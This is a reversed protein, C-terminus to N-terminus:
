HGRSSSNPDFGDIKTLAEDYESKSLYRFDIRRYDRTNPTAPPYIGDGFLDNYGWNRKPPRYWASHRDTMPAIGAESEYLSVLSGRYRFEIGSWKELFRPLNHAGGSQQGTLEISPVLGTVLAASVETYEAVRNKPSLKTKTDDFSDSLITISDAYLAASAEASTFTDGDDTSTSSGTSPNGDSNFHGQVYLQGNTALTFGEDFGGKKTFDPNPVEGGNLLRLAVNRDAPMVKDVRSSTRQDFPLEVYVLGNWDVAKGPNLHYQGNWPDDNGGNAEGNNIIDALLGIDLDIVDMSQQQRRDYFGSQPHGTADEAYKNVTVLPKGKKQIVKDLSLYNRKLTGDNNQKPRSKPNLQSDRNYKYATVAYDYGGPLTPAAVRQVEIVLGAKYSLQEQQVAAGKFNDHTNAVQPEILAYAHNEREDTITSPDDPVYDEISVPNLKPVDHDKSGVNGDWREIAAERWEDGMRSDVYSSDANRSGGKYVDVWDGDINKILVKGDQTHTGTYKSGHLIDGNAMLTSHFRLQNVAQLYLDGNSHVPGQMEMKPGPHFELDMNYFIAHSFLPADRVSLVQACYVTKKGLTPHNVVAKGFVDVDRSFVIKGRQPDTQNAPAEPDIYNWEGFPVNGGVLEFDEYVINTDAYFDQVTSPILLPNNQLERLTFSTQSTWRKRLEAFGYEVISEAANSAEQHLFHSKNLRMETAGYRLLSAAIIGLAATFILVIVFASGEKQNCGFCTLSERNYTFSSAVPHYLITTPKPLVSLTTVM